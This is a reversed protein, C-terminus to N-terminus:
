KTLPRGDAKRQKVKAHPSIRSHRLVTIGTLGAQRKLGCNLFDAAFALDPTNTIQTSKCHPLFQPTKSKEPRVM